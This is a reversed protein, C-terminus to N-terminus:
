KAPWEPVLYSECDAIIESMRQVFKSAPVGDMVCHDASTSIYCMDRPVINMDKDYMPMKIIKGVGIIMAEPMNIIPAAGDMGFMGMSSVTITGGQFWSFDMKNNRIREVMEKMKESIEFISLNQCNKINPVVLGGSPTAVAFGVNVSEYVEIQEAEVNYSANVIPVDQIALAVVKILIETYSIKYGKEKFKKKLEVMGTVDMHVFGSMHPAKLKSAKMNDAILKRMGKKMQITEKIVKGDKTVMKEDAM